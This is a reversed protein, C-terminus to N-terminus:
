KYKKYETYCLTVLASYSTSLLFVSDNSESCRSNPSRTVAAPLSPPFPRSAEVLWGRIRHSVVRYISSFFFLLCNHMCAFYIWGRTIHIRRGLRVPYSFWLAAGKTQDYRTFYLFLFVFAFALLYVLFLLFGWCCRFFFLLGPFLHLVGQNTFCFGYVSFCSTFVLPILHTLCSFDFCFGLM